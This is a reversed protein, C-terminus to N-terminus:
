STTAAITAFIRLEEDSFADSEDDMALGNLAYAFSVDAGKDYWIGGNFGYANGFHGILPRPYFNPNEFIQLGAGYSEFVGDLYDGPGMRPTWLPTTDANRLQEALQLMGALSLRLGGQPSYVAPHNAKSVPAIDEDIQPLFQGGAKRYTALRHARDAANVGIWNFGGPTPLFSQVIDPFSQNSLQELVAALLIYGLNCYSFRAGPAGEHIARTNCWETLDADAPVLYGAADTLGASHSTVMGLTIPQDPYAPNRLRWGLLDSIDHDWTTTEAKVLAAISQGVIVKSISAVRFMSDTNASIGKATSSALHKTDATTM